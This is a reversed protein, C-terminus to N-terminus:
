GPVEREPQSPGDEGAPRVHEFTWIADRGEHRNGPPGGVVGALPALPDEGMVPKGGEGRVRVRVLTHDPREHLSYALRVTIAGPGDPDPEYTTDDIDEVVWRDDEGPALTTVEVTGRVTGPRLRRTVPIRLQRGTKDMAVDPGAVQPGPVTLEGPGGLLGPALGCTLASILDAPLLTTRACEQVEPAGVFGWCDDRHRLTVTITALVV